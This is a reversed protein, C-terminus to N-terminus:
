PLLHGLMYVTETTKSKPTHIGASIGLAVDPRTRGTFSVVVDKVAMRRVLLDGFRLPQLLPVPLHQVFGICLSNQM